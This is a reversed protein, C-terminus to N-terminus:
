RRRGGGQQLGKGREPSGRGAGYALSGLACPKMKNGKTTCVQSRTTDAAPM